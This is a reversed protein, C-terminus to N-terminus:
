KVYVVVARDRFLDEFGPDFELNDISLFTWQGKQVRTRIVDQLLARERGHSETSGIDDIFAFKAHKLKTLLARDFDTMIDPFIAYEPWGSGRDHFFREITHWMLRSKGMGPVGIIALTHFDCDPAFGSALRAARQDPLQSLEFDSFRQPVQHLAIAKNIARQQEEWARCCRDHCSPALWKNIIEIWHYRVTFPQGCLPCNVERDPPKDLATEIM